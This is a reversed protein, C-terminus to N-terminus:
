LAFASKSFAFDFSLVYFILLELVKELFNMLKLVVSGVRSLNRRVLSISKSIIFQFDTYIDIQKKNIDHGKLITIM